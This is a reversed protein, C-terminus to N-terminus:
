RDAAGHLDTAWNQIEAREVGKKREEVVAYIAGM